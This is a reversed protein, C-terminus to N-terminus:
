LKDIDQAIKNHNDIIVKEVYKTESHLIDEYQNLSILISTIDTYGSSMILIKLYNIKIKQWAYKQNNEKSSYLEDIISLFMSQLFVVKSLKSIDLNYELSKASNKKKSLIKDTEIINSAIELLKFKDELVYLELKSIQNEIFNIVKEAENEKNIDEQRKNIKEQNENAKVQEKFAVYVLIAGALNIFPGTMGGITDGITGYPEFNLSPFKQCLVNVYFIPFYFIFLIGVVIFILTVIWHSHWNKM